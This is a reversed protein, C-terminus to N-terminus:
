SSRERYIKSTFLSLTINDPKRLYKITKKVGNNFKIQQSKRNGLQHKLKKNSTRALSILKNHTNPSYPARKTLKLAELMRKKPIAGFKFLKIIPKIIEKSEMVEFRNKISVHTLGLDRAIKSYSTRGNGSLVKLIYFNIEDFKLSKKIKKIM